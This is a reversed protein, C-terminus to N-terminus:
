YKNFLNTINQGSISHIVNSVKNRADIDSVRPQFHGSANNWNVIEGNRFEITGAYDVILDYSKAQPQYFESLHVHNEGVRIKNGQVVFDYWGTLTEGRKKAFYKGNYFEVGYSKGGALLGDFKVLNYKNPDFAAAHREFAAGFPIDQSDKFSVLDIRKFYAEIKDEPWNKVAEYVGADNNPLAKVLKDFGSQASSSLRPALDDFFKKPSELLKGLLGKKAAKEGVKLIGGALGAVLIVPSNAGDEQVANSPSIWQNNEIWEANKSILEVIDEHSLGYREQIGKQMDESLASYVGVIAGSGILNGLHAFGNAEAKLVGTGQEKRLWMQGLWYEKEHWKPPAVLETNQYKAENIDLYRLYALYQKEDLTIPYNEEVMQGIQTEYSLETTDSHFVSIAAVTVELKNPESVSMVMPQQTGTGVFVTSKEGIGMETELAAIKTDLVLIRGEREVIWENRMEIM